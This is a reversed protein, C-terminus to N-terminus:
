DDAYNDLTSQGDTDAEEEHKCYRKIFRTGRESIEDEYSRNESDEDPSRIVGTFKITYSGNAHDAQRADCLFDLTDEVWETQINSQPIHQQTLTNTLQDLDSYVLDVVTNMKGDKWARFQDDALDDPFVKDWLYTALYPRPPKSNTVPFQKKNGIFKEPSVDIRQYGGEAGINVSLSDHDPLTSDRFEQDLALERNFQYLPVDGGTEFQYRILVINHQLSYPGTLDAIQKGLSTAVSSNVLLMLDIKDPSTTSTPSNPIQSISDYVELKRLLKNADKHEPKRRSVLYGVIGYEDEFSATFAPRLPSSDYKLSFEPYRDFYFSSCQDSYVNTLYADWSRTVDVEEDYRDFHALHRDVCLENDESM